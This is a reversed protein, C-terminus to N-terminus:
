YLRHISHMPENRQQREREPGEGRILEIARDWRLKAVEFLQLVQVSLIADGEM